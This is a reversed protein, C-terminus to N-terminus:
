RSSEQHTATGNFESRLDCGFVRYPEFQDAFRKVMSNEMFSLLKGPEAHSANPLFECHPDLVAIFDRSLFSPLDTAHYCSCFGVGFRGTKTRGAEGAKKSGGIQQISELDTDTFVADNYTLLAPGQFPATAPLCLSSASHTRLDLIVKFESAGADDANQVMERLLAAEPYARLVERLRACLDVKQGFNRIAVEGDATGNPM